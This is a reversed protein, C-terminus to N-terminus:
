RGFIPLVKLQGPFQVYADVVKIEALYLYKENFKRTRALHSLIFVILVVGWPSHFLPFNNGLIDLPQSRPKSFKPVHSVSRANCIQPNSKNMYCPDSHFEEEWIVTVSVVDLTNEILKRRKEKTPEFIEERCYFRFALM